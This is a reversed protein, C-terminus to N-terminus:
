DISNNPLFRNLLQKRCLNEFTDDLSILEINENYKRNLCYKIIYDALIPNKSLLPGHLYTAIVNKQFVGEETDKFKNGNGFLVKGFPNSIDFTQGGHNEFGIIKTKINDLNLEYDTILEIEKTSLVEDFVRNDEEPMGSLSNSDLDYTSKIELIYKELPKVKFRLTNHGVKISKELKNGNLALVAKGSQFSHERDVVDFDLIVEKTDLDTDLVFNSVSPRDKLVDISVTKNINAEKGDHYIVKNATYKKVGSTSGINSITVQYTLNSLKVVDYDKNNIHIKSIDEVKNSELEYIFSVSGNKNVYDSSALVSKVHVRPSAAVEQEKFIEDKVVDTDKGTLNYSVFVKVKYKSTMEIDLFKNIMGAQELEANTLKVRSIEKDEANMVLISVGVLAKDKDELNFM